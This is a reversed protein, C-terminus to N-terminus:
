VLTLVLPLAELILWVAISVALILLYVQVHGDQANRLVGGSFDAIKGVGNVVGDVVWKDFAAWFFSLWVGIRGITNVIPDIIWKADVWFLFKSFGRTFPVITGRGEKREGEKKGGEWNGRGEKM